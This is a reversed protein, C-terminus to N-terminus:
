CVFVVGSLYFSVQGLSIGGDNPPVRQNTFVSISKKEAEHLLNSLLVKNQFCGGSVAIRNIMEMESIKMMTRVLTMHFKFALEIVNRNKVLHDISEKVFPRWDMWYIPEFSKRNKNEIIPFFDNDSFKNVWKEAEFEVRMAAEGEFQSIPAIGLLASFGDFLRGMSHCRFVGIDKAIIKVIKEVQFEPYNKKLVDMGLDYWNLEKLLGLASRIPEKSGSDGGALPFPYLSAVRHIMNEKWLFVESGWISEDSGYGTGDWSFGLLPPSLQNEAVVSMFHAVHHQVSNKEGHFRDSEITSQYNPHLDHLIIEPTSEYLKKLDSICDRYTDVSIESDLDGLHQSVFCNSKIQLSITNKLHGGLALINKHTENKLPVPLPAFGRARRLVMTRGNIVRVISDDVPRNIPRNHFLFYDAILGLRELAEKNDICIPEDSLNGSTAIVPLNLEKLLLHHLPTNPLMIGLYPNEPSVSTSIFESINEKKRILVIPCEPSKLAAIEAETPEAIKYVWDLSPVMVAFPKSQRHKRLRLLNVADSNGAVTILHFGGIGKVAITKGSKLLKATENLAHNRTSIIKESSDSLWIQPGCEPCANPQAHFRRDHPNDYEEQCDPCMQFSKMATKIRDYPLEEIISFRPGCNTCNTFPYHYRRNNPDFVDKVCEPCTAIDPLIFVSKEGGESKRIEFSTYGKLELWWFDISQIYARPPIESKLRLLFHNLKEEFGEVEIEVGRSSNIVWGLLNMEDALRYVFPRFGVGQVAGTILIFLRKKNKMNQKEGPHLSYYLVIRVSIKM